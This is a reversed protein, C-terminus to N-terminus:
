LLELIAMRRDELIQLIFIRTLIRSIHAPCQLTTDAGPFGAVTFFTLDHEKLLVLRSHPRQRIKGLQFARDDGNIAPRQFMFEEVEAKLPTAPAPHPNDSAPLAKSGQGFSQLLRETLQTAYWRFVTRVTQGCCPFVQTRIIVTVLGLAIGSQAFVVTHRWGGPGHARTPTPVEFLTYSLGQKQAPIVLETRQILVALEDCLLYQTVVLAILIQDTLLQRVQLWKRLLPTRVVLLQRDPDVATAGDVDSLHDVADRGPKDSLHQLDAEPIITQAAVNAAVTLLMISLPM